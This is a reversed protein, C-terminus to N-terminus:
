QVPAKNISKLEVVSTGTWYYYFPVLSNYFKNKRALHTLGHSKSYYIIKGIPRQTAENLIIWRDYRASPPNLVSVEMYIICLPIEYQYMTYTVSTGKM